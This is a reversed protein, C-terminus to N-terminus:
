EKTEKKSKKPTKAEVAKFFDELSEISKSDIGLTQMVTGVILQNNHQLVKVQEEADFCRIKLNQITQEQNM